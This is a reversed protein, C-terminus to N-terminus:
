VQRVAASCRSRQGLHAMSATKPLDLDYSYVDQLWFQTQHGHDILYYCFGHNIIDIQLYLEHDDPLSVNLREALRQFEDIAVRLDAYLATDYIPTDTCIKMKHHIYYVAGEPHICSIWGEPIGGKSSHKDTNM